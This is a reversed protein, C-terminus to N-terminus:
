IVLLLNILLALLLGETEWNKSKNCQLYVVTKIVQYAYCMQLPINGLPILYYIVKHSVQSLKFIHDDLFVSRDGIM